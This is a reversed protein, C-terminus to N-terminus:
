WSRWRTGHEVPPQEEPAGGSNGRIKATPQDIGRARRQGANTIEEQLVVEGRRIREKLVPYAPMLSPALGSMEASLPALKASPQPSVKGALGLAALAILVALLSWRFQGMMFARM